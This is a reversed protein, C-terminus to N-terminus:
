SPGWRSMSNSGPGGTAFQDLDVGIQRLATKFEVDAVDCFARFALSETVYKSEGGLRRAWELVPTVIRACAEDDLEASVAAGAPVSSMMLDYVDQAPIGRAGLAGRAHADERALFAALMLRNPITRVGITRAMHHALRVVERARLTLGDLRGPRDPDIAALEALDAEIPELDAASSRSKLFEAFAPDAVRCFARFLGEESVRRGGASRRAETLAPTVVRECVDPSLIVNSAASNEGQDPEGSMTVLVAYLLEIDVGASRCVRAAFGDDREIFAAMLLRHTIAPARCQQSLLHARQVIETAATSLDLLPVAGNADMVPSRACDALAARAEAPTPLDIGASTWAPRDIVAELLAHETIPGLAHGAAQEFLAIADPAFDDKRALIWRSLLAQLRAADPLTGDNLAAPDPAEAARAEPGHEPTALLRAYLADPDRGTGKMITRTLGGTRLLGAIVDAVTALSRQQENRRRAARLLIGDVPFAFASPQITGRADFVQGGAPATRLASPEAAEPAPGARRRLVDASELTRRETRPPKPRAAEPVRGAPRRAGPLSRRPGEAGPKLQDKRLLLRLAGALRAIHDDIPPPFGDAWQPCALFFQLDEVPQIDDTRFVIITKRQAFALNVESVVYRSANAAPSLVLVFAMTEEIAHNIAAAWFAGLPVDRPAMWCALGHGELIRCVREAMEKDSTAHSIFVDAGM